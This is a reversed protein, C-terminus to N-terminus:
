GHRIAITKLATFGYLAEFGKERGHGSAKVGGFPLEVGGGAGYNNIFVQGARVARAMRMQRAGNETWVGAVLGFATSNALRLADQESDFPMAALVPGFVEEQALRHTHPVDRLLTPAQYFGSEPAQPVISGQAMVSIGDSHADSLFDWVRQQQQRRILPGCDLDMQAPGVQLREFVSALLDLVKEYAPREILLRSGASCTQGANQVIASTVAPLLLDMDADAFVIQPSKGGLELTVPVHNVAAAQSVLTGVSPSGTFSVHDIGPHSVLAAGAEHGYGTVINIVGAPFGIDAALQALRLISMCADEAPKVVCTNGAALAGGVSRGFIQLPYNWPIIHGTVGLPERLTLVTYGAQYPITEGHLKDCAGAYFEFYRAVAAADARAQRLPKGCDRAELQAFEEGHEILAQSLRYLLRGREAASMLSWEGEFATRATQVAFQIDEANGRAIEDYQQGDSPDIVPIAQRSASAVWRNGIFHQDPM